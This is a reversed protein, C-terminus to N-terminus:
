SSGPAIAPQHVANKKLGGLDLQALMERLFESDAQDHGVQQRRRSGGHDERLFANDTLYIDQGNTEILFGRDLLASSLLTSLDSM